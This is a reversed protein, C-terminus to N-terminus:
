QLINVLGTGFEYFPSINGTPLGVYLLSLFLILLLVYLSVAIMLMQKLRREGMLYMVGVMFLPAMAYFGFDQLLAAFLIPLALIAGVHNGRISVVYVVALAIGCILKVTNLGTKELELMGGIVDPLNLYIFPIALLYFTHLYWSPSNHDTERASDASGDDMASAIMSSANGDGKKWNFLLQGIAAIAILLLIARPWASAGYRYIEIDKNFEFSYIFLVLAFGLWLVAEVIHGTRLNGM